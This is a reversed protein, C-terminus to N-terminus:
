KRKKGSTLLGDLESTIALLASDFTSDTPSSTLPDSLGGISSAPPDAIGQPNTNGAALAFSTAPSQSGSIRSRATTFEYVSDSTSDVIWISASAPDITIGTPELRNVIPRLL